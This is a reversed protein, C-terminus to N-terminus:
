KTGHLCEWFIRYRGQMKESTGRKSRGEDEAAGTKDKERAKLTIKVYMLLVWGTLRKDTAESWVVGDLKQITYDTM